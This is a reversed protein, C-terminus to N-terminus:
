PGTCLQSSSPPVFFPPNSPPSAPTLYLLLISHLPSLSLHCPKPCILLYLPCPHLSLLSLPCLFSAEELLQFM